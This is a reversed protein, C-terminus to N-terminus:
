SSLFTKLLQILKYLKNYQETGPKEFTLEYIDWITKILEEPDEDKPKSAEILERIVRFATRQEKIGEELEEVLLKALETFNEQYEMGEPLKKVEAKMLSVKDM